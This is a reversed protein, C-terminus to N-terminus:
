QPKRPGAQQPGIGIVNSHNETVKPDLGRANSGHEHLDTRNRAEEQFALLTDDDHQPLRISPGAPSKKSLHDGGPSGEADSVTPFVKAIENARASALAAPALRSGFENISAPIDPLEPQAEGQAKVEVLHKCDGAHLEDCLKSPNRLPNELELFMTNVNDRTTGGIPKM